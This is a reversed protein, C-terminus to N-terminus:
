RFGTVNTVIGAQNPMPPILQNHMILNSASVVSHLNVVTENTPNQIMTRTQFIVCM